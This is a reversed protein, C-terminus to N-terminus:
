TNSSECLRSIRGDVKPNVWDKERTTIKYIYDLNDNNDCDRVPKTDCSGETPDLPVVVRLSKKEFTM